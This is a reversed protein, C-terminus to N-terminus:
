VVNNKGEHHALNAHVDIADTCQIAGTSAPVTKPVAITMIYKVTMTYTLM